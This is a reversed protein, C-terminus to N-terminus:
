RSAYYLGVLLAVGIGNVTVIQAAAVLRNFWKHSRNNAFGQVALGFIAARHHRSRQENQLSAMAAAFKADREAANEAAIRSNTRDEVSSM